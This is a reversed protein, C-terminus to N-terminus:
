RSPRSPRLGSSKARPLKLSVFDGPGPSAHRSRDGAPDFHGPMPLQLPRARALAEGHSRGTTCSPSRRGPQRPHPSGDHRPRHLRRHNRVSEALEEGKTHYGGWTSKYKNSLYSDQRKCVAIVLDAFRRIPASTETGQQQAPTASAPHETPTPCRRPVSGRRGASPPPLKQRLPLTVTRWARGDSLSLWMNMGLLDALRRSITLWNAPAAMGAYAPATTAAVATSQPTLMNLGRPNPSHPPGSSKMRGRKSADAADPSVSKAAVKRKPTSSKRKAQPADRRTVHPQCNGAAFHPNQAYHAQIPQHFRPAPGRCSQLGAPADHSGAIAKQNHRAPSEVPGHPSSPSIPPPRGTQRSQRDRQLRVSNRASKRELKPM